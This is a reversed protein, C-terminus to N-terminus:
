ASSCLTIHQSRKIGCFISCTCSITSNTIIRLNMELFFFRENSLNKQLFIGHQILDLKAWNFQYIVYGFAISMAVYTVWMPKPMQALRSFEWLALVAILGSFAAWIPANAFFLMGIMIPLLVIATLIRPLLM